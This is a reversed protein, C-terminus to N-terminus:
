FPQNILLDNQYYFYTFFQFKGEKGHMKNTDFQYDLIDIEIQFQKQFPLEIQSCLLHGLKM